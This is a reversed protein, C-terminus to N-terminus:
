KNKSEAFALLPRSVDVQVPEAAATPFKPLLLRLM